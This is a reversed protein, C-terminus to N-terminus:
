AEQGYGVPVLLLDLPPSQSLTQEPTLILGKVDKVPTKEKWLIHFISNPLRSLVEFPATFDTQDLGPFIIAGINLHEGELIYNRV